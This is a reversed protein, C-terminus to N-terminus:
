EIKYKLARCILEQISLESLYDSSIEIKSLFEILITKLQDSYNLEPDALHIKVRNQQRQLQLLHGCSDYASYVPIDIPELYSEAKEVSEFILVDGNDFVIIPPKVTM